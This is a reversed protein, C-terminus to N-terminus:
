SHTISHALSRTLSNTLSLSFRDWIIKWLRAAMELHHCLLLYKITYLESLRFMRFTVNDRAAFALAVWDCQFNYLYKVIPYIIFYVKRARTKWTTFFFMFNFVAACVHFSIFAFFSFVFSVNGCLWSFENMKLKKSNTCTKNWRREIAPESKRCWILFFFLCSSCLQLRFFVTAIFLFIFVWVWVVADKWM